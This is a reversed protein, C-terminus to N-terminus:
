ILTCHLGQVNAGNNAPRFINEHGPRFLYIVLYVGSRKVRFDIRCLIGTATAIHEARWSCKYIIFCLTYLLACVCVCMNVYIYM